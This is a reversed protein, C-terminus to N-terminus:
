KERGGTIKATEEPWRRRNEAVLRGLNGLQFSDDFLQMQVALVPGCGVIFPEIGKLSTMSRHMRAILGDFYFRFVHDRYMVGDGIDVLRDIAIPGLNHAPGRSAIQLLTTPYFDLPEPDGDRVMRQLRNLDGKDLQIDRFEVRKTAASRWLLSLFFLRLMSPNKCTVKRLGFSPLGPAAIGSEALSTTPGWSKWILELRSLEQIAWSDYHALIDEGERTVLKDDYWSDWTRKPRSGQGGQILRNGRVSPRTLAKPLLHSRVFRGQKGTLKCIGQSRRV